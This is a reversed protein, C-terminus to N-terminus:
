STHTHAYRASPLQIHHDDEVQRATYLFHLAIVGHNRQSPGHGDTQRHGATTGPDTGDRVVAHGGVLEVQRRVVTVYLAQEVGELEVV